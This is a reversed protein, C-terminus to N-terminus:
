SVSYGLRELGALARKLRAQEERLAKGAAAYAGSDNAKAADGARLYALSIAKLAAAVTANGGADAPSVRARALARRPPWTSASSRM